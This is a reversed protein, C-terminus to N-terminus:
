LTKLYEILDAKEQDTRETGYHHGANSNGPLGTDFLFGGEFPGTEFGVAKPDYARTGVYFTRVRQAPPQLLERLNPVSGNHLYPATAWAGALPKAKYALLNPPSENARFGKYELQQEPSLKLDVFQRKSVQFVFQSLLDPAKMKVPVDAAVGLVGPLAEHTAFNVAAKPDTGIDKLPVMHTKIFQRKWPNPETMPYPPKDGHCSDCKASAYVLAGRQVAEPDLKGLVTEDWKPPELKDILQELDFLNKGRVSSPFGTPLVATADVHGFAGLVEGVNRGFPNAVSGNWQVWDLKPTLWLDPYSVPADAVRYNAPIGLATGFVENMILALADVRGYGHAFQPGNRDRYAALANSYAVLRRRLAGRDAPKGPNGVVRDAFRDFKPKEEVTAEVAQALARIFRNFDALAPAGDVRLRTGKFEIQGTHCAACTLGLWASEAPINAEDKGWPATFARLFKQDSQDARLPEIPEKTFGVPLVDPEATGPLYRFRDINAATRFPNENTAQELNLFWPYPILWSGQPTTYFRLREADTWGQKLFVVPAAPEAGPLPVVALPLALLPVLAAVKSM